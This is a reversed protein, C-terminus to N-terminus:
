KMDIHMELLDCQFGPINLGTPPTKNMSCVTAPTKHSNNEDCYKRISVIRTLLRKWKLIPDRNLKSFNSHDLSMMDEQSPWKNRTYFHWALRAVRWLCSTCHVSICFYWNNYQFQSLFAFWWTSLAKLSPRNNLFSQKVMLELSLEQFKLCCIMNESLFISRVVKENWFTFTKFM